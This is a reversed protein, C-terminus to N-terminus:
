EPGAGSPGQGDPDKDLESPSVLPPRAHRRKPPTPLRLGATLDFEVCLDCTPGGYGNKVAQWNTIDRRTIGFQRALAHVKRHFQATFEIGRGWSGLSITKVGLMKLIAGVKRAKLLREEGAAMRLKNVKEAIGGVTVEGAQPPHCYGFLGKVVYWAPERNRDLVAEEDQAELAQILESELHEDGLLPVALARTIDRLKPSFTEIKQAWAPSSPCVRDVNELRFMLLKAQQEAAIRDLTFKDIPELRRNSPLMAIHIARTSLAVDEIPESVCFIKPCSSDFLEGGRAVYEGAANGVRLFRQLARSGRTGDFECEDLLLTPMLQDAMRYLAATSIDGLLIARRCFCRLLKLLTTKGSGTPGTFVVYPFVAVREPFWTSLAFTAALLYNEDALHVHHRIIMVIENLADTLNGCPLIETPLCLAKAISHNLAPALFIQQNDEVEDQITARGGKWVLLRIRAPNARDRVWEVCSGDSLRTLHPPVFQPAVGSQLVVRESTPKSQVEPIGTLRRSGNPHNPQEFNKGGSPPWFLDITEKVHM